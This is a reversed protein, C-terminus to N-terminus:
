RQKESKHRQLWAILVGILGALAIMVWLTPIEGLESGLVLVLWGAGLFAPLGAVM